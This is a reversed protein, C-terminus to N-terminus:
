ANTNKDLCNKLVEKCKDAIHEPDAAPRDGYENQYDAWAHIIKLASRLREIEIDAEAAVKIARKAMAKVEKTPVTEIGLLKKAILEQYKGQAKVIM